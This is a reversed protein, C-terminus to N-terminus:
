NGSWERQLATLAARVSDVEAQVVGPDPDVRINLYKRFAEVARATDGLITALEGEEKLLPARAHRSFVGGWCCGDGTVELARELQGRRRALRAVALMGIHAPWEMGPGTRMLAELTDLAPTDTRTTDYGEVFAEVM